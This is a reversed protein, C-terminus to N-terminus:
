WHLGPRLLISCFIMLISNFVGQGGLVQPVFLSGNIPSLLALCFYVCECVCFGGTNLKGLPLSCNKNSSDLMEGPPNFLVNIGLSSAWHLDSYVISGQNRRISSDCHLHVSYSYDQLLYDQKAGNLRYNWVEKVVSSWEPDKSSTPCQACVPVSLPVPMSVWNIWGLSHLGKPLKPFSQSSHQYFQWLNTQSQSWSLCCEWTTRCSIFVLCPHMEPFPPLVWWPFGTWM